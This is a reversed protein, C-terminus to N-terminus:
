ASVPCRRGPANVPASSFRARYTRVGDAASFPRPRCRLLAPRASPIEFRGFAIEEGTRWFFAAFSEQVAKGGCTRDAILRNVGILFINQRQIDGQATVVGFPKLMQRRFDVALQHMLEIVAVKHAMDEMLIVDDFLRRHGRVSPAFAGTLSRRLIRGFVVDPMQIFRRFSLRKIALIVWLCCSGPIPLVVRCFYQFSLSFGPDQYAFM